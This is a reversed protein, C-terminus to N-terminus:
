GRKEGLLEKAAMRVAEASSKQPKWGESMIKALSLQMQKVDGVWGRGGDVGGTWVHKVKKLGMEEAVINAISHVDLMDQSGINYIGVRDICKKEATLMGDICDGM